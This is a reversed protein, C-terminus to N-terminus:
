KKSESIVQVPGLLGSPLLSDNAKYFPMTTYTIKNKEDPQADGILRNVWLNVVKVELQNTGPKLLRTVDAKFPKKWVIGASQGNVTVEAMNKVEGLDLWLKQGKKFWDAPAEITKTYTATGSFYKIGADPNETWSSLHNVKISAPAGRNAQFSITWEGSLTLLSKTITTPVPVSNTNAKNKFVVFVADAQTLPLQVTTAGNKITYAAPEIQGTEPHWIEPVKGAIRFTAEITQAKDTRNNVWYIDTNALQRHVFLLQTNADTATYSFDKPISLATLVENLPKNTFVNSYSNSWIENVISQFSAQNDSLSPTSEPKVGTITAGAKVLAQIKKLVPLSM